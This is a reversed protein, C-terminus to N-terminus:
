KILSHERITEIVHETSCWIDKNEFRIITIGLSKLYEERREDNFKGIVTYHENGDLEIALKIEPCYFDLIYYGISFQRRWRKGGIQKGKLMRWLVAEASTSNSRLEKRKEKLEKQNYLPNYKESDMNINSKIGGRYPTTTSRRPINTIETKVGESACGRTGRSSPCNM